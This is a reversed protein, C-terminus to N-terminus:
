HCSWGGDVPLNVGTLWRSAPSALFYIADAVAEPTGLGLLHRKRVADLQEKPLEEIWHRNIDTVVFGPCVCNARIGDAGYDVALSQTYNIVAAKSPGYAARDRMGQMGAISATTVIAARLGHEDTDNNLMHPLVAQCARHVGKVNVKFTDAWAADDVEKAACRQPNIGANAILADVGGDNASAFASVANALSGEANPEGAVDTAAFDASAAGAALCDAATAELPEQRRGVLLLRAGDIAFRLATARGIGTGAGTIVVRPSPSSM